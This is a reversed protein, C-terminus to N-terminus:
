YYSSPIKSSALSSVGELINLSDANVQTIQDGALKLNRVLNSNAGPINVLYSDVSFVNDDGLYLDDIVQNIRDTYSSILSQCEALDTQDSMCGLLGDLEDIYDPFNYNDMNTLISAIAQSLAKEPLASLSAVTDFADGIATGLTDIVDQVGNVVSDLCSGAFREALERTDSEVGIADTTLDDLASQMASAGTITDIYNKVDDSTDNLVNLASDRIDELNSIKEEALDNLISCPSTSM